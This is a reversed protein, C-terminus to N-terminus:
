PQDSGVEVQLYIPEGFPVGEPDYAQWASRYIGAESPATFLMRLTAKAGSRAPYLAQELAAGLEAGSAFKLRYTEDWNCTGSNEILWRKDLLAGPKVVTGDPLSLDELFTLNNTCTPTSVPVTTDIPQNVAAPALTVTVPQTAQFALTPPRYPTPQESCGVTILSFAILVLLYTIGKWLLLRYAIDSEYQTDNSSSAQSSRLPRNRSM